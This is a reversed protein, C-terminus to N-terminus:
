GSAVSLCMIVGSEKGGKEDDRLRGFWVRREMEEEEVRKKRGSVVSLCM